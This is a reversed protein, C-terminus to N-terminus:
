LSVDLINVIIQKIFIIVVLFGYCVEDEAVRSLQDSFYLRLLQKLDIMLALFM